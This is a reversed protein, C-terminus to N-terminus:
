VKGGDPQFVYGKGWVNKLYVPEVLLYPALFAEAIHPRHLYM